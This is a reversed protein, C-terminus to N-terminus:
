LDPPWPGSGVHRPATSERFARPLTRGAEGLKQHHSATRVAGPSADSGDSGTTVCRRGSLTGMVHILVWGPVSHGGGLKIVAAFVRSGLLDGESASFTLVEANTRPSVDVRSGPSLVRWRLM